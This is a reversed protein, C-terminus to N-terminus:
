INSSSLFSLLVFSCRCFCELSYLSSFRSAPPCFSNETPRATRRSADGIDRWLWCRLASSPRESKPPVWAIFFTFGLTSIRSPREVPALMSTEAGWKIWLHGFSGLCNGENMSPPSPLRFTVTVKKQAGRGLMGYFDISLGSFKLSGGCQRAGAERLIKRL